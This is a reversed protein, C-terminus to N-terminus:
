LGKVIYSCVCAGRRHKSITSEGISMGIEAIRRAIQTDTEGGNVTPRNALKDVFEKKIDAPLAEVLKGLVCHQQKNALPKAAILAQLDM